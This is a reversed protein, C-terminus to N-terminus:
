AFLARLEALHSIAAWVRVGRRDLEERDARYAIFPVGGAQAALGDVWSDGVVYAAELDHWRQSIVRLGDPDPKLHRVEDRTVILDLHSALALRELVRRSVAGGNNTWVATRFGLERAARLAELAGPELQADLLAQEEHARAIQWFEDELGPARERVVRALEPASWRAERAPLTVGRAQLLVLLDRAMARLDLPSRVLTHDLDFVLARGGPM